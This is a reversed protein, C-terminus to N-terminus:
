RERGTIFNIGIATTKYRNDPNTSNEPNTLSILGSERLPKIYNDRFTKENKYDLWEMLEKLKVPEVSTFNNNITISM